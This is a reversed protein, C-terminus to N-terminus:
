IRTAVPSTSQHGSADGHRAAKAATPSPLERICRLYARPATEYHTKCVIDVCAVLDASRWPHKATTLILMLGVAAWPEELCSHLLPIL